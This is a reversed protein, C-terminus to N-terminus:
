YKGLCSITLMEQNESERKAIRDLIEIHMQFTGSKMSLVSKQRCSERVAGEQKVVHRIEAQNM